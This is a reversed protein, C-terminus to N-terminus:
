EEPRNDQIFERPTKGYQKRFEQSFYRRDKFGVEMAIENVNLRQEQLLEAARRLRISKIFDNVSMKTLAKIKKYLVPVSMALHRSLKEVGFDPNDLNEEVYAVVEELYTKDLQNLQDKKEQFADAPGALGSLQQKVKERQRDRSTMLNRASLDLVKASFPKTIYLDAGNELGTIKDNQTSRATLLIVPIHSTRNDTKLENCFELGDMVPMMIDSIILDPIEAQAIELGQRGDMAELITFRREFIERVLQRLEANDEVILLTNSRTDETMEETLRPRGTVATADSRAPLKTDAAENKIEGEAFHSKGKLLIVRFTTRGEIEGAAPMSEATITGRHLTVITKALALGIGYGTNQVGHDAVQFFNTFIKDIHELAIGRGNDTVTVQVERDNENIEVVVSGNEPTFRVANALLNFFVKELQEKDFYLPLSERNHIFSFSINKKISVERFSNYVDELFAVLDHQGVSLRLNNTEAKRFDMLESVLKLLRNANQKVGGLQQKVFHGTQESELMKDVPTMILTLHTRIEHSINTFFNLKVQHLEEEKKLLAGLFFYRVVLFVIAAAALIYIIYAWWTLWFPPLITLSMQITDSWVGDNNSGKIIFSYNGSPLNTYIAQPTSTYVWDKDYGDLKYAFRNKNSKIYNLLAFEFSVVNQNYRLVLEDTFPMANELVGQSRGPLLQESFLRFDTFVIPAAKQNSQIREPNFYTIGNFGGFYFIGRSDKLFSNYNFSKGALGDSVTFFQVQDQAPNYRILGNDSSLWLNGMKDELIGMVNRNGIKDPQNFYELGQRQEHYRALGGKRMGVWVQFKSDQQICNIIEGTIKKFVDRELVFLGESTSVWLRRQDDELFYYATALMVSNDGKFSANASDLGNQTKNFLKIGRTSGVWFRGKSDEFISLVESNFTAPDNDKYLYRKFKKTVPDFQNLGGGHTGAWIKGQWDKYVVKILNSAIAGPDNANHKYATFLGTKRDYYNLGGGETGIWLNQQGDEVLSSIVNNNLFNSQDKKRLVSFDTNIAYTYNVGGFYTGVWINGAVDEYLSHISNQSLSERDDDNQQVAMVAKMEENVLSIGEQTGVWMVGTRTNIIKRVNNNILAGAATHLQHFRGTSVDLVNVGNNLTGVWIRGQRDEAVTTIFNASISAANGEEHRFVTYNHASNNNRLLILGTTTGIWLNGNRDETVSRVDARALGNLPTPLAFPKLKVTGKEDSTELTYLGEGTGVWITGKRDEYLCHYPISHDLPSEIRTFAELRSDYQNLGQYTGVWMRKRSDVLISIINNNSLTLSDDHRSQYIRFRYGDYRNLGNSTGIWMFGREDQAISLVANQSLGNEMTLHYFAPKHIEAGAKVMLLTFAIVLWHRAMTFKRVDM